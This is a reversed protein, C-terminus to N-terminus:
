AAEDRNGIPPVDGPRGDDNHTHVPREPHASADKVGEVAASELSQETGALEEVSEENM